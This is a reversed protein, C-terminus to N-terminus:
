EHVARVMIGGMRSYMDVKPAASGSRYCVLARADWSAVSGDTRYAKDGTWYYLPFQSAYGHPLGMYTMSGQAPLYISNGNPGTVNFGYGTDEWTCQEVLEQMEAATPMRWGNGWMRTAVDLNTGCISEGLDICDDTLPDYYKYNYTHTYKKQKLEGWCFYSNDVRGPGGVNGSAWKVSLGLDVMVDDGPAQAEITEEPVPGYVARVNFGVEPYDYGDARQMMADLCARYNRCDETIDDGDWETSTWLFANSGDHTHEADVMNGACPFYISNGTTRSTAKMCKVDGLAALTWDCKGILEMFEEKTPTRWQDGWKVHAVDYNTGTITEGLKYYKEWEDNDFDEWDEYRWKYTDLSYVEKPETEGYAYFNGAEEPKTAGINYTAWKVSCGMDVMEPGQPMDPTDGEDEFTIKVVDSVRRVETTGDAHHIRILKDGAFAQASCLTALAAVALFLKKM